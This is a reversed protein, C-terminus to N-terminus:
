ARVRARGVRRSEAYAGDSALDEAHKRHLRGALDEVDTAGSAALRPGEKVLLGYEKHVRRPELGLEEAFERYAQGAGSFAGREDEHYDDVVVVGGPALAEWIRPLARKVPRYFVVDVLCFAVPAIQAFDFTGIDAVMSRVRTAGDRRMAYDYWSRDNGSFMGRYHRRDHGRAQETALDSDRFGAFTDLAVYPKEIGESTMYRNLFLTTNGQFCGAEVITGPVDRVRELCSCLYILQGPTHLYPYRAGLRDRVGPVHMALHRTARKVDYRDV